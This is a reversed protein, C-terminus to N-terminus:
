SRARNRSCRAAMQPSIHRCSHSRSTGGSPVPTPPECRGPAVDRWPALLKALGAYGGVYGRTQIEAMLRRGSHCGDRWRQQLYERYFEPMGPRSSHPEARATRARALTQYTGISMGVEDRFRRTLTSRSQALDCAPADVDATVGGQIELRAGAERMIGEASWGPTRSAHRNNRVVLDRRSRTASRVPYASGLFRYRAKPTEGRERRGSYPERRFWEVTVHGCMYWYRQQGETAGRGISRCGEARDSRGRSDLVPALDATAASRFVVNDGSPSACAGRDTRMPGLTPNRSVGHIADVIQQFQHTM